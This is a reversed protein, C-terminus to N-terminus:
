LHHPLNCLGVPCLWVCSQHPVFAQYPHKPLLRSPEARCPSGPLLALVAATGASLMHQRGVAGAGVAAVLVWGRGGHHHLSLVPVAGWKKEDWPHTQKFLGLLM